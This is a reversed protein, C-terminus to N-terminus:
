VTFVAKLLTWLLDALVSTQEQHLKNTHIRVQFQNPLPLQQPQPHCPLQTPHHQVCREQREPRTFISIKKFNGLKSHTFDLSLFSLCISSYCKIFHWNPTRKKPFIVWDEHNRPGLNKLWIRLFITFLRESKFTM